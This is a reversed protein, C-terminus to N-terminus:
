NQMPPLLQRIQDSADSLWSITSKQIWCQITDPNVESIMLTDRDGLLPYLRAYWRGIDSSSLVFWCNPMYQVWRIAKDFTKKIADDDLEGHFYLNIQYLRLNHIAPLNTTV